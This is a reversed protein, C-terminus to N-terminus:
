INDRHHRSKFYIAFDGNGLEQNNHPPVNSAFYINNNKDVIAWSKVNNWWAWEGISFIMVFDMADNTDYLATNISVIDHTTGEGKTDLVSYINENTSTVIKLVTGNLGKSFGNNKIFENNLFDKSKDYPMFHLQYNLAFIENPKKYYKFHSLKGFSYTPIYTTPSTKMEPYYRTLEDQMRVFDITFDDARGEENAYLVAKSFWGNSWLDSTYNDLLQNGASIPSDFSMEFCISNGSGYVMLPIAVNKVDGSDGNNIIKGNNYASVLAYEVRYSNRVFTILMDEYDISTPVSNYELVAGFEIRKDENIVLLLKIPNYAQYNNTIGLDIYDFIGEIENYLLCNLVDSIAQIVILNGSNNPTDSIVLSNNESDYEVVYGTVEYLNKRTTDLNTLASITTTVIYPTADLTEQSLYSSITTAFTMAISNAVFNPKFAIKEAILSVLPLSSYYIYEGYTEECKVTLENSINSLRKEYNLEIRKALGNFNKVFEINAQVLDPKIITYVCNNAVWRDNNEDIFFQGKKVRNDWSSFLQTVNLTPQGLKLSLGVMNLGLKNIDISGNSQNILSEGNYKNEICEDVLKGDVLAIYSVYLKVNRWDPVTMNIIDLDLTSGIGFFTKIASNLVYGLRSTKTGVATEQYESVGIYNDGRKYTLTNYKSLKSWDNDIPPEGNPLITWINEEVVYSTIDLGGYNMPNEFDLYFYVSEGHGGYFIHANKSFKVPSKIRVSRILDIPKPVIFVYDNLGPVGLTKSRLYALAEENNANPFEHNIKTNQFYTILKNTYREESLSQNKGALTPEEIEEQAADNFYEIDLYGENDITFIADFMKFIEAVAEYMNSQTFVFNPTNTTRLLNYLDPNHSQTPLLFLPKINASDNISNYDDTEKMQQKLLTNLVAYVNDEMESMQLNFAYNLTVLWPKGVISLGDFVTADIYTNQNDLNKISIELTGTNFGKIWSMINDPVNVTDGNFYNESSITLERQENGIKFVITPYNVIDANTGEYIESWKKPTQYKMVLSFGQVEYNITVKEVRQIIVQIKFSMSNLIKKSLDITTNIKNSLYDYSNDYYRPTPDGDYPPISDMSKAYVSGSVFRVINNDQTTSFVTNRIEHKTLFESLQVLSLNHIYRNPNVTALEVNDASIIFTQLINDNEDKIYFKQFPAYPNERDNAIENVNLNDLTEDLTSSLQPSIEIDIKRDGIYFKKIQAM